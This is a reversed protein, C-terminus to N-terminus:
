TAELATPPPYTDALLESVRAEGGPGDALFGAAGFLHLCTRGVEDLSQHVRTLDLPTPDTDLLARAEAIGAAADAVLGRVMPLNLTTTGAVSRGRLHAAARNLLREALGLRIWAVGTTWDPGAPGGDPFRRAVLDGIRGLEPGAGDRPRPGAPTTYRDCTADVDAPLLTHGGPGVPLVAPSTAAHLATLAAAPGDTYAVLRHRRPDVGGAPDSAGAARRPDVTGAPDGTRTGSVPGPGDASGARTPRAADARGTPVTGPTATPRTTGAPGPPPTVTVTM